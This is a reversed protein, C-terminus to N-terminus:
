DSCSKAKATRQNQNLPCCGSCPLQEGTLPCTFSAARAQQGDPCCDPPCEPCCGPFCTPDNCCNFRAAARTNVATPSISAAALGLLALLGVLSFLATRRNM